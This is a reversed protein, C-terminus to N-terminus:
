RTYSLYCVSITLLFRVYISVEVTKSIYVIKYTIKMVKNYNNMIITPLTIMRNDILRKM